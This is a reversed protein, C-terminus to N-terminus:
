PMIGRLHVIKFEDRVEILRNSLDGIDRTTHPLPDGFHTDRVLTATSGLDRQVMKDVPIMAYMDTNTRDAIFLTYEQGRTLKSTRVDLVSRGTAGSFRIKVKGRATPSATGVASLTSSGRYNLLSPKNTLGYVPAWLVAFVEGTQGPNPIAIGNIVNTVNGIINTVGMSINTVGAIINTFTTTVTPISPQSADMSNGALDTLHPFFPLFDVPSQNAGILTRSWTGKKPDSRDLPPLIVGTVYNTTFHPEERFFLSLNNQGFRKISAKLTENGKADIKLELAGYAARPSPDVTRRFQSRSILV